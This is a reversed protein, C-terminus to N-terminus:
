PPVVPKKGKQKSKATQWEMDEQDSSPGSSDAIDVAGVADQVKSAPKGIGVHDSVQAVVKRGRGSGASSPKSTGPRSGGANVSEVDKSTSPAAPPGQQETVLRAAESPTSRRGREGDQSSSSARPQRDAPPRAQISQPLHTSGANGPAGQKRAPQKPAQSPGALDELSFQTARSETRPAPGGPSPEVVLIGKEGSVPFGRVAM